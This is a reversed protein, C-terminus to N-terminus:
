GARQAQRERVLGVFEDLTPYDLMDRISLTISLEKGVRNVVRAASLSSGGLAFFDADMGLDSEALIESWVASVAVATEDAPGAAVPEPAQELMAGLAGHDVRGDAALPLAPLVLFRDPRMYGPLAKTSERVRDAVQEPDSPAQVAAVLSPGGRDAQGVSVVVAIEVGPTASIVEEILGPRVRNGGIVLEGGIRGRPWLVGDHSLYGATGTRLMRSGPPGWPDPLFHEGVKALRSHYGTGVCEDSLYVEGEVGYPVPLLSPDLVRVGVGPLPPGTPAILRDADGVPDSLTGCAAMGGAEASRYYHFFTADCQSRALAVSAAPTLEGGCGVIRLSPLRLLRGRAALRGLLRSTVHLVTVQNAAAMDELCSPDAAAADAVVLCAGSALAWWAAALWAGDVAEAVLLVRDASSLPYRSRLWHSQESLAGYSAGALLPQRDRSTAVAYALSAPHPARAAGPGAALADAASGEDAGPPVPDAATVTVGAEALVEGTVERPSRPDFPVLAAGTKWGAVLSEVAL